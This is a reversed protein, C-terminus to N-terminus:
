LLRVTYCYSEYTFTFRTGLHRSLVYLRFPNQPQIKDSEVIDTLQVAEHLFGEGRRSLLLHCIFSFNEQIIISIKLFLLQNSRSNLDACNVSLLVKSDGDLTAKNRLATLM